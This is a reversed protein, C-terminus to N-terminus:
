YSYYAHRSSAKPVHVGVYRCFVAPQKVGSEPPTLRVVAHSSNAMQILHQTQSDLIRRASPETSYSAFFFQVVSPPEHIGQM